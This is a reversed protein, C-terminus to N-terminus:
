QLNDQDLRQCSHRRDLLEEPRAHEARFATGGGCGGSLHVALLLLLAAIHAAGQREWVKQLLMFAASVIMGVNGSWLLM